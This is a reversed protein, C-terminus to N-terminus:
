ESSWDLRRSMCDRLRQLLRVHFVRASGYTVKMRSALTNLDLGLGYRLKMFEKMRASVKELCHELAELVDGSVRDWSGALFGASEYIDELAARERGLSTRHKLVLNRAIGWVWPYFERSADFKDLRRWATVFAQQAIDEAMHPDGLRAAINARLRAQCSEVLRGYAEVDGMKSRTSLEKMDM